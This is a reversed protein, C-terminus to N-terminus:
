TRSPVGYGATSNRVPALSGRTSGYWERLIVARRCAAPVRWATSSRVLEPEPWRKPVASSSFIAWATSTYAKRKAWSPTFHWSTGHAGLSTDGGPGRMRQSALALALAVAVEDAALPDGGLGRAGDGVDVGRIRSLHQAVHREGGRLLRARGHGGGAAGERGPAVRGRGHAAADEELDLGEHVRLLVLERAQERAFLALRHLFRQALDLARHVDQLVRRRLSPAHAAAGHGGLQGVVEAVGQALG